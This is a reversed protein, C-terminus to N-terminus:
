AVRARVFEPEGGDVVQLEVGLPTRVLVVTGGTAELPAARGSWDEVVVRLPVRPDDAQFSVVGSSSHLALDARGTLMLVDSRASYRLARATIEGGVSFLRAIIGSAPDAAEVRVRLPVDALAARDASPITVSTVVSISCLAATM